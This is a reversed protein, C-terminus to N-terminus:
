NGSFNTLCVIRSASSWTHGMLVCLKHLLAYKETIITKTLHIKIRIEKQLNTLM